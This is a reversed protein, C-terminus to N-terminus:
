LSRANFTDGGTLTGQEFGKMFWKMRQASTGHTFAEPVVRGGGRKQLTDDGIANAANMAERIDQRDVGIDEAHHAWVGAYYDAQLEMRVSLKNFEAESLQRRAREVRESVGLVNQIHHGVEHAIVYAQAFDGDAGLQDRMTDYFAIDIYVQNDAPCYFPGVEATAPGCGSQVQGSFMVLKPEPYDKGVQSFLKSWVKETQGLIKKVFRS